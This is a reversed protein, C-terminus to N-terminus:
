GNALGSLGMVAAAQLMDLRPYILIHSVFSHPRHIGGGPLGLRVLAVRGDSTPVLALRRPTEPEATVHPEELRAPLEYHDIALAWELLTSERNSAARVSFGERGLLSDERLCHMVLIQEAAPAVFGVPIVADDPSFTM